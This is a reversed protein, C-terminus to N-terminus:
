RTKITVQVSMGPRLPHLPDRADDVLIKVPVRQVVKTFNGTANDPPLLSFMAGTAGSLSQVHGHFRQKGYADVRIEVPDGPTVDAIETEKLNAVVWVDHLTVISMLPQGAQVFQGVEVNKRSVLGSEPAVVRTYSLNLLAQDRSARAAMVRANAGLVAAQAAEVQKRAADLQAEASQSAAVAADLQQRSIVQRAALTRYREVDNRARTANAEAQAVQARAAALQAETQGARVRSGASAIAVELDADAQALKSRYERDDLRVVVSDTSM